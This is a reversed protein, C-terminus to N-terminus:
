AQPRSRPRRATPVRPPPLLGRPPAAATSRSASSRRRPTAISRLRCRGQSGAFGAGGSYVAIITDNGVPLSSDSASTATGGSVNVATGIQNAPAVSGLYFSVTGVSPSGSITATFTVPEGQTLPGVPNSTVSILSSTVNLLLENAKSNTTYSWGTVSAAYNSNNTISLNAIGSGGLGLGAGSDITTNPALNSNNLVISGNPAEALIFTYSEGPM